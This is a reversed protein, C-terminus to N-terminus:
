PRRAPLYPLFTEPPGKFIKNFPADITKVCETQGQAPSIKASNRMCKDIFLNRLDQIERTDALARCTVIDRLSLCELMRCTFEATPNEYCDAPLEVSTGTYRLYRDVPMANAAFDPLYVARNFIQEWQKSKAADQITPNLLRQFLFDHWTSQSVTEYLGMKKTSFLDKESFGLFQLIGAINMFVPEYPNLDLWHLARGIGSSSSSRYPLAAFQRCYSENFESGNLADVKIPRVFRCLEPNASKAAVEILCIDRYRIVQVGSRADIKRIQSELSMRDCWRKKGSTLALLMYFEEYGNPLRWVQDVRQQIVRNPKAEPAPTATLQDELFNPNPANQPSPLVQALAPNTGLVICLLLLYFKHM